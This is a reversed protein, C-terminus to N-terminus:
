SMLPLARTLALATCWWLNWSDWLVQMRTAFLRVASPAASAVEVESESGRVRSSAHRTLLRKRRATFRAGRSSGKGCGPGPGGEAEENLKNTKKKVRPAHRCALLKPGGLM